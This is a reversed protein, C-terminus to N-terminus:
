KKSSKKSEDDDDDNDSEAIKRKQIKLFDNWRKKLETIVAVFATVDVETRNTKSRIFIWEGNEEDGETKYDDENAIKINGKGEKANTLAQKIQASTGPTIMNIRVHHEKEVSVIYKNRGLFRGRQLQKAAEMAVGYKPKEEFKYPLFLLTGGKLSKVTEKKPNRLKQKRNKGLRDSAHAMIPSPSRNTNSVTSSPQPASTCNEKIFNGLQYLSLVINPNSTKDRNVQDVLNQLKKLNDKDDICLSALTLKDIDTCTCCKRPM